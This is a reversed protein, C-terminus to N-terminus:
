PFWASIEESFSLYDLLADKSVKAALFVPTCTVADVAQPVWHPFPIVARKQDLVLM